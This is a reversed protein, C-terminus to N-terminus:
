CSNKQNPTNIRIKRRFIRHCLVCYGKEFSQQRLLLPFVATTEQKGLKNGVSKGWIYGCLLCSVAVISWSIM